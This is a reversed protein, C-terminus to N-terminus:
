KFFQTYLSCKKYESNCYARKYSNKAAKDGFMLKMGRITGGNIECSIGNYADQSYYPCQCGSHIDAYRLRVGRESLINYITTASVEYTRKIKDIRTGSQYENAINDAFNRDIKM